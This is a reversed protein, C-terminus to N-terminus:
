VLGSYSTRGGFSKSGYTGSQGMYRAAEAAILDQKKRQASALGMIDAQEAEKQAYQALQPSISSLFEARPLDKAIKEYDAKAQTLNEGGAVLAEAGVTGGQVNSYMKSQITTAAAYAELGQALSAGGVEAATVKRELEPLQNKPDLMVGVIDGTSLMPYFKKWAQLTEPDAHTLRNYGLSVRTGVETSDVENGILNGYYTKNMFQPLNYMKFVKEYASETKLYDAESLMPKGADMLAKNGSFRIMYNANFKPDTRLLTLLDAGAIDPYAARIRAIDNAIDAMGWAKFQSLIALYAPDDVTTTKPPTVIPTPTGNVVVVGTDPSTVTKPLNAIDWNPGYMGGRERTRELDIQAQTMGAYVDTPAPTANAVAAALPDEFVGSQSLVNPNSSSARRARDVEQQALLQVYESSYQPETQAAQEALGVYDPELYKAM